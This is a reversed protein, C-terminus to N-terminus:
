WSMQRMLGALRTQDEKSTVVFSNLIGGFSKELISSWKPQLLRVSKGLPGIPPQRFGKDQQIANLLRPLSPLYATQQRGRDKVLDDLRKECDQIDARKMKIPDKAKEAKEEARQQRERLDGLSAEHEHLKARAAAANAKKEDIEALRQAHSGGDLERLRREEEEIDEKTKAISQEASKM